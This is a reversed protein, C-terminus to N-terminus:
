FLPSITLGIANRGIGTELALVGVQPGIELKVSWGGYSLTVIHLMELKVSWGGYSLTIIHLM